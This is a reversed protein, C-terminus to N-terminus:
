FINRRSRLETFVELDTADKKEINNHIELSHARLFPNCELESKLTTPITPNNISRLRNIEAFRAILAKNKPELALAFQANRQSYEHTCYIKTQEPMLKIRQLSQLMQGPTGEFLRGCGLSFLVDGCFLIEETKFYYAIHGLTHGPLFLIQIAFPSLFIKEEDKLYRDAPIRQRDHEGAYVTPQYKSRLFDVGGIHDSHHHTLLIHDLTWGKKTLFDAVPPGVAPDVCFTIHSVEDRLVFVYNDSLVPILHVSFPRVSMM